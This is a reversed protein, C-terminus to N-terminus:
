VHEAHADVAPSMLLCTAATDRAQQFRDLMHEDVLITKAAKWRARATTAPTLGCPQNRVAVLSDLIRCYEHVLYQGEDYWQGLGGYQKHLAAIGVILEPDQAHAAVQLLCRLEQLYQQVWRSLDKLRCAPSAGAETAIRQRVQLM